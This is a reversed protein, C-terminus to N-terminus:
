RYTMTDWNGCAMRMEAGKSSQKKKSHITVGLNGPHFVMTYGTDALKPVSVLSHTTLHPLVHTHRAGISLQEFPLKVTHTAQISEGNPLTVSMSSSGTVPLDDAGRVFHSTAGSDLVM